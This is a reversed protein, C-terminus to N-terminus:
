AKHDAVDLEDDFFEPGLAVRCSAKIKRQLHGVEGTKMGTEDAIERRSLERHMGDWVVLAKEGLSAVAAYVKELCDNLEATYEPRTYTARSAPGAQTGAPQVELRHDRKQRRWYRREDRLACRVLGYLLDKLTKSDVVEPFQDYALGPLISQLVSNVIGESDIKHQLAPDRRARLYALLRARLIRDMRPLADADGDRLRVLEASTEGTM